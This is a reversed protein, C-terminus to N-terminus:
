PARVAARDPREPRLDEGLAGFPVAEADPHDRQDRHAPLAGSFQFVLRDYGPQHAARIQTLTSIAPVAAASTTATTVTGISLAAVALAAVVAHFRVMM